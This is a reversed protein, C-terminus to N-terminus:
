AGPSARYEIEVHSTKFDTTAPNGFSGVEEPQEHPHPNVTGGLGLASHTNGGKYVTTQAKRRRQQVCRQQWRATGDSKWAGGIKIALSREQTVDPQNRLPTQSPGASSVWSWWSARPGRCSQQTTRTARSQQM